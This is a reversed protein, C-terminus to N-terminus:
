DQDADRTADEDVEIRKKMKIMAFCMESEETTLSPHTRQIIVLWEHKSKAYKSLPDKLCEDALKGMDAKAFDRQRVQFMFADKKKAYDKWIKNDWEIEVIAGGLYNRTSPNMVGVLVYVPELPISGGDMKFANHGITHLFYHETGIPKLEPSLYGFSIQSKRLTEAQIQLFAQQRGSGVGFEQSIEDRLIFGKTHQKEVLDLLEQNTFAIKQATFREDMVRGLEIFLSSKYSGTFGWGTIVLHSEIKDDRRKVLDDFFPQTFDVKLLRRSSPNSRLYDMLKAKDAQTKAKDPKLNYQFINDELQRKRNVDAQYEILKRTTKAEENAVRIAELAEAKKM